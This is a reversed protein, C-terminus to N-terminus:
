EFVFGFSKDVGAKKLHTFTYKFDEMTTKIYGQINMQDRVAQAQPSKDDKLSLLADSVKSVLQPPMKKSVILTGDPHEGSDEGVVILNPYNGKVKDWTRDKVIAIDVSGKSLLDIASDHSGIKIATANASKINPISHYFFEGASALPVFVVKKDKFYDASKTFKPSGKPAIVLTGYTSRGDKSVPRVLPVAIEKILMTGAVGSGSFMADVAGATFMKAAAPFDPVAIFNVEIGKNKLYVVLPQFKDAAHKESQMIAIRLQETGAYSNTLNIAFVVLFVILLRILKM